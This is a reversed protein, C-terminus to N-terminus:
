SFQQPTVIAQFRIRLAKDKMAAAAGAALM